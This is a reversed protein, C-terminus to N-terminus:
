SSYYNVSFRFHATFEGVIWRICYVSVLHETIWTKRERRSVM